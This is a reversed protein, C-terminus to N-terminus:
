KGCDSTILKLQSINVEPNALVVKLVEHYYHAYKKVLADSYKKRNYEITLRITKTAESIVFQIDFQTEIQKWQFLSIAIDKELGHIVPEEQYIFVTDFLANSETVGQIGLKMILWDLQYERNGIAQYVKTKVKDVIDQFQNISHITVRIPLTNVFNGVVNDMNLQSRGNIPVGVVIDENGSFHYILMKYISLLIVNKTTKLKVALNNIQKAETESFWVDIKCGDIEIDPNTYDSPLSENAKINSLEQLWYKEMSDFRGAGKEQNQWVAYDKYEIDLPPLPEERYLAAFEKAMNMISLADSIIHHMDFMLLFEENKCEILGVRLPLQSSLDFPRIFQKVVVELNQQESVTEELDVCYNDIIVQVIDGNVYDFKTRLSSHREVLSNIAKVLREKNLRGKIRLLVPMNYSTSNPELQNLVYMRSQEASLPYYIKEISREILPANGTISLGKIFHSQAEITSCRFLEIIPINQNFAANLRETLLMVNISNGGIEFFDDHISIKEVQLIEEWCSLIQQQLDDRPEEYKSETVYIEDPMPLAGRDIKGNPTSPLPDLAVFCVPVMYNPLFDRLYAILEKKNINTEREIYAILFLQGNPDDKASVVCRSGEFYMSIVNEIEELDIRYGRIKIQHDTRGLLEIEGSPLWKALDGTKYITGFNSNTFKESTLRDHNFYGRALGDGGIYLEGIAGVPQVKMNHDLIFVRTNYLPTGINVTNTHTMEKMTSWVTTETPGYMNYVRGNSLTRLRDVIGMKLTEGGILFTEVDRLFDSHGNEILLQEARSPTMQVISINNNKILGLIESPLYQQESSAIVVSMGTLLPLIVEIVFIDFSITTLALVTKSEDWELRNKISHYLNVVSRHEVMVGKPLGTSGSTYILYALDRSHINNRVLKKQEEIYHIDELVIIEGEFSINSPCESDVILLKSGSDTLMHNIRNIPYNPDIPLYAGGAKLIGLLIVVMDISRKVMLGIIPNEPLEMTLLLNALQNSREHLERYSIQRDNMILAVRDLLRVVQNEFLKTITSEKDYEYHTQNFDEKIRKEEIDSIIKMNGISSCHGNSISELITLYMSMWNVITKKKYLRTSYEISCLWINGSRNVNLSMDFKSTKSKVEIPNITLGEIKISDTMNFSFTTDFIPNRNIDRKVNLLEVLVELPLKQNDFIDITNTKVNHLLESFTKESNIQIRIPVTNVFLGVINELELNDRGSVPVGVVIDECGSYKHLFVYYAGLLLMFLTTNNELAVGRLREMLMGPIEFTYSDGSYDNYMPRVSDSPMDLLPIGDEFVKKWYQKVGEDYIINQQWEAYDKYTLTPTDLKANDQYLEMFEEILVNVSIGDAIIHHMDIMLLYENDGIEVGGVRILGPKEIQFPRIFKRLLKYQGLKTHAVFRELSFDVHSYVKQVPEDQIIEFGTRLMEHRQILKNFINEVKNLDIRGRIHLAGTINYATHVNTKSLFFIRKQASSLPYYEIGEASKPISNAATDLNSEINNQSEAEIYWALKRITSYEFIKNIPVRVNFRKHMISVLSIVNLSHGGLLFFDDEIGNPQIGLLEAWIEMLAIELTTTAPSYSETQDLSYGQILSLAKKDVKGNRTLPIESVVTFRSPMMYYPVIESLHSRIDQVLLTSNLTLYAVLIKNGMSDNEATVVTSCVKGHRVLANEVESVEIRFGRVKVQEDARGLCIVEDNDPLVLGVDGSRYYKQEIGQIAATVFKKSTLDQQNLYGAAVGGGGIVIEGIAGPPLRRMKDDVIYLNLSPIPKGISRCGTNIDEKSLEKYSVHVTTETIGYMNVLKISPYVNIWDILMSSNLAEGGFIVYKLEINKYDIKGRLIESSLHYFSSPVQNLVTVKQEAILTAFQEYDKTISNPVIVLKGGTILCGFMEWVSFDFCISHFMTWVERSNNLQFLSNINSLLSVVNKHTVIVGKPNGTTGSTYIIYAPIDDNNNGNRHTESSVTQLQDWLEEINICNYQSTQPLQTDCMVTNIHADNIIHLIRETPYSLDIPVYTAGAKLIGLIVVIMKESRDLLVGINEGPLVGQSHVLFNCVRNSYDQLEAYSLTIGNFWVAVQDARVKVKEELLEHITMNNQVAVFHAPIVNGVNDFKIQDFKNVGKIIQRSINQLVSLFGNLNTSSTSNTLKLRIGAATEAVLLHIEEAAYNIIDEIYTQDTESNFFFNQFNYFFSVGQDGIIRKLEMISVMDHNNLSKKQIRLCQLFEVVENCVSGLDIVVPLVGYFCGVIEEGWRHRGSVIEFFQLNRERFYVSLLYAYLGKFYLPVSVGNQKCFKKIANYEDLSLVLAEEQGKNIPPLINAQLKETQKLREEWFQITDKKNYSEIVKVTTKLYEEKTVSKIKKSEGRYCELLNKFYIRASAGDFILHHINIIAIYCQPSLRILYHQVLPLKISHTIRDTFQVVIPKLDILSLKKSNVSYHSIEEYYFRNKIDIEDSLKLYHIGNQEVLESKLIPYIDELQSLADCWQDIELKEHIIQYYTLRHYNDAPNKLCSYLLENQIPTLPLLSAEKFLNESILEMLETMSKNQHVIIRQIVEDFFKVIGIAMEETICSKKYMIKLSFKNQGYKVIATLNYNTAEDMSISEIEIGKISQFFMHDVPYNEIGIVSDFIDESNVQNLCKKIDVLSTQEFETRKNLHISLRMIFQNVTEDSEPRIRLPLTNIFLGVINEIGRVNSNRGSVTTGFIVDDRRSYRQLVLGWATYFIAAESVGIKAAAEELAKKSVLLDLSINGQETIETMESKLRNEQPFISNHTYSELYESWFKNSDVSQSQVVQKVHDKFEGKSFLSVQQNHLLQQYYYFFEKLIIANSWGDYLIHHNSIIMKYQNLGMKYLTVSFPIQKLDVRKQLDRDIYLRKEENTYDVLDIIKIRMYYSKLMIQVPHEIKEWRFVTRLMENTEVVHNWALECTKYDVEGNINITLHGFYNNNEENSLYHYLMGQQMPSLPLINQVNSQSVISM